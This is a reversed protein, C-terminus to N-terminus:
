EHLIGDEPIHRRTPRALVSRESSCTGEIMTTSLNAHLHLLLLVLDTFWGM